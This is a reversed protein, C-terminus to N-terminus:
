LEDKQVQPRGCIITLNGNRCRIEDIMEKEKLADKLTIRYCLEYMSGLNTTKARELSAKKAYKEFIDDFINTYDLNEPITIKLDKEQTKGEGFSSKSLVLFVAGIIVTILVAFTLFGMGTALGIAMAFFISTIEKSSGPVSRFRVLSFAGMVAVGTGLNGNVLAIIIQVLAPLLALTIVFNKSYNSNLMYIFAIALGLVLSVGTCILADTVALSAAAEQLISEFM